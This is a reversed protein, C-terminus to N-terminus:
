LKQGPRLGFVLHTATGWVSKGPLDVASWFFLETRRGHICCARRPPGQYQVVAESEGGGM